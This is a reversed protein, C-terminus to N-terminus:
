QEWGGIYTFAGWDAFRPFQARCALQANRYAGLRAVGATLETYLVGFFTLAADANIPWLTAVVADAGAALLSFPLGRMNGAPDVRGLATECACLTVLNVGRLDLALPQHAYLRGDTVETSDLYLCHFAPAAGVAAGHAAIHAYQSSALAELAARPTASGKSLLNPKETRDALEVAQSWLRPESQLGFSVGGDPSAIIATGRPEPASRPPRLLAGVSPVVSVTFMDSLLGGDVPLLQFPLFALPGHPCVVLHECGSAHLGALDEALGGLINVSAAELAATGHRSV